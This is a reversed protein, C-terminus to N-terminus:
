KTSNTYNLRLVFLSKVSLIKNSGTIKFYQTEGEILQIGYDVYTANPNDELSAVEGAFVISGAKEQSVELYNIASKLCYNEFGLDVQALSNTKLATGLETQGFVGLPLVFAIIILTKKIRM